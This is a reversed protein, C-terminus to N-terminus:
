LFRNTEPEIKVEFWGSAGQKVEHVQRIEVTPALFGDAVSSSLLAHPIRMADLLHFLCVVHFPQLFSVAYTQDAGVAFSLEINGVDCAIGPLDTSGAQAPKSADLKGQVLMAGASQRLKYNVYKSGPFGFPHPSKNKCAIGRM